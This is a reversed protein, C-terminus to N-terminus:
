KRKQRASGLPESSSGGGGLGARGWKYGIDGVPEMGLRLLLVLMPLTLLWQFLVLWRGWPWLVGAPGDGLVSLRLRWAAMALMSSCRGVGDVEVVVVVVM